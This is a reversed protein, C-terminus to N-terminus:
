SNLVDAIKTIKDEIQAREQELISVKEEAMKLKDETKKLKDEMQSKEQNANALFEIIQQVLEIDSTHLNVTKSYELQENIPLGKLITKAYSTGVGNTEYCNYKHKGQKQQENIYSQPSEGYKIKKANNIKVKLNKFEFIPESM